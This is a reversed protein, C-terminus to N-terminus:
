PTLITCCPTIYHLVNYCLHLINHLMTYHLTVCQLLPLTINHLMTYHLTVCQLLPLTYQAVHHLTTYCMTASTSQHQTVHHLATYCLYLLTTYCPTIYHLVNYCLYLINHLMTYHLTVTTSQNTYCPTICHLLPLTYQAVKTQLTEVGFVSLANSSVRKVFCIQSQLSGLNNM